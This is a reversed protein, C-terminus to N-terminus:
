YQIVHFTVSDSQFIVPKKHSRCEVTNADGKLSLWITYSVDEHVKKGKFFFEEKILNRSPKIFSFLILILITCIITKM